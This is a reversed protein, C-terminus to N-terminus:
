LLEIKESSSKTIGYMCNPNTETKENFKFYNTKHSFVAGTSVLIFPIDMNKAIALMNITGNINVDISKTHNEESERLNIAALHIICSIKKLKNIYMNISKPNTIDMEKSNPKYGFEMNSGVMGNGGTILAFNLDM